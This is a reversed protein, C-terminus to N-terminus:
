IEGLLGVVDAHTHQEVLQRLAALYQILQEQDASLDSNLLMAVREIPLKHLVSASRKRNTAYQRVLSSLRADAGLLPAERNVEVDHVLPGMRTLFHRLEERAEAVNGIDPIESVGARALKVQISLTNIASLLRHNREFSEATMWETSM